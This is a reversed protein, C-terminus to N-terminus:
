GGDGDDVVEGGDGVERGFIRGERAGRGLFLVFRHAEPDGLQALRLLRSKPPTEAVPLRAIKGRWEDLLWLQQSADDWRGGLVVSGPSFGHLESAGFATSDGVQRMRDVAILAADSTAAALHALHRAQGLQLIEPSSSRVAVVFCDLANVNMDDSDSYGTVTGIGM